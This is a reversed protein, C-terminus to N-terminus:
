RHPKPARNREDLYAATSDKLDKVSAFSGDRVCDQPLDAFFREQLNMWSSSSQTFHMHFRKHKHLWAKVKAHQAHRLQGRDRPRLQLSRPM